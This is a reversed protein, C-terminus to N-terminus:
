IEIEYLVDTHSIETELAKKETKKVKKIEKMEKYEPKDKKDGKERVNCWFKFCNVLTSM